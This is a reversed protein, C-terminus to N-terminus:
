KSDSLPSAATAARLPPILVYSLLLGVVGAEMLAGTWIPLSWHVGKLSALAAFYVAYIVAPTALAFIRLSAPTDARPRLGFNLLDVLLGTLIGLIVM